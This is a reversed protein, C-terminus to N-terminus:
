CGNELRVKAVQRLEVRGRADMRVTGEGEFSDRGQDMDKRDIAHGANVQFGNSHHDTVSAVACRGRVFFKLRQHNHQAGEDDSLAGDTRQIVVMSTLPEKALFGNGELLGARFWHQSARCDDGSPHRPM